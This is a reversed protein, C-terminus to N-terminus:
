SSSSVVSKEDCDSGGSTSTFQPLCFFLPLIFDQMQTSDTLSSSFHAFCSIGATLSRILGKKDSGGLLADIRPILIDPQCLFLGLSVSMGWTSMYAARKKGKRSPKTTSYLSKNKAGPLCCQVSDVCTPFIHLTVRVTAEPPPRQQWQNWQPKNWIYWKWSMFLYIFHEAM